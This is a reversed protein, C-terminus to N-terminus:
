RNTIRRVVRFTQFDSLRYPTGRAWTVKTAEIDSDSQIIQKSFSEETFDIENKCIFFEDQNFSIGSHSFFKNTLDGKIFTLYKGAYSAANTADPSHIDDKAFLAFDPVTGAKSQIESLKFKITLFNDKFGKKSAKDSKPPETKAKKKAVKDIRSEKAKKKAKMILTEKDAAEIM